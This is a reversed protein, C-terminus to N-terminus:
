FLEFVTKQKCLINDQKVNKSYVSWEILFEKLKWNQVCLAKEHVKVQWTWLESVKIGHIGRNIKHCDCTHLPESDESNFPTFM